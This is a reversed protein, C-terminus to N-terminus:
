QGYSERELWPDQTSADTLGRSASVELFVGTKWVTFHPNPVILGYMLPIEVDYIVYHLLQIM